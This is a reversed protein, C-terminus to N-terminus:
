PNKRIPYIINKDHHTVGRNIRSVTDPSVGIKKSIEKQSYNSNKLLEKISDSDKKWPTKERIPYKHYLGPRLTGYNIKKVTSIGIGLEESIEKYTKKSNILLDILKEYDEDSKYYKRLPYDRNHKYSLGNNINSLLTKSIDFREILSDYSEETESLAFILEEIQNQDLIKEYDRNGEGGSNENYGRGKFTNYYEIWYREREEWENQHIEELISFEFNEIGYERIKKAWTTNYVTSNENYACSAHERKRREINNTKGIYSNGTIKNKYRYIYNKM